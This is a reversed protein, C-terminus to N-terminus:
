QNPKGKFRVDKELVREAMKERQAKLATALESNGTALIQAAFLAANQAGDIAMTAVPIGPPMQVIAYLADVGSLPGGGIPVGVVPLLTYSALVGPLHAARGAGAIIVKLGRSEAEQAYAAAALPTRHASLIRVEYSIKLEDFIGVAKQMVDWDSDSGMVIGVVPNSLHM